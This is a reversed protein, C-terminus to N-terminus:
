QSIQYISSISKGIKGNSQPHNVRIRIIKTGAEEVINKFESNWDGKEDTLRAGYESWSRNDVRQCSLNEL